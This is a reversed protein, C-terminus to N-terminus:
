KTALGAYLASAFEGHKSGLDLIKTHESIDSESLINVMKEAMHMPTVVESPSLKGFKRMAAEVREQPQLNVDHGKSNLNQIKYDLLNMARSNFKRQFIKLISLKLGVNRAIRKNDANLNISDIVEESSKVNSNTLFAFFLIQAYYTALKVM